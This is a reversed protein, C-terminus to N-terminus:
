TTRFKLSSFLAPLLLAVVPLAYWPGAWMMVIAADILILTLLAHKVALQIKRSVPHMIGQVARNVVTLGILGILLPYGRNPDMTWTQDRTWQPLTAIVALGAVQLLLALGLQAPNSSDGEESRAYLTVGLIYLGIGAAFYLLPRPFLELESVALMCCGVMLVNLARCAGMLPPGLLSNKLPSDYARVSLSLLVSAVFAAGQWLPQSSHLSTVALILIPNILLLVNAVHGAVAPSIRGSALPRHPRKERDEEIDVVDNLIMGAWYAAVSALLTPLMATWPQWATGVVIAAALCNSLLTFVTPLRVLQAWDGVDGWQLRDITPHNRRRSPQGEVEPMPDTPM